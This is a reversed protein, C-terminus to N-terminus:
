YQMIAIKALLILQMIKSAYVVYEARIVYNGARTCTDDYRLDISSISESRYIKLVTNINDKSFPRDPDLHCMELNDINIPLSASVDIM